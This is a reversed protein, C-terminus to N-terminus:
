SSASRAPPDASARRASMSSFDSSVICRVDANAGSATRAITTGPQVRDM